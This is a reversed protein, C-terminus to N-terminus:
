GRGSATRRRVPWASRAFASGERGAPPTSQPRRGRRWGARRRRTRACRRSNIEGASEVFDVNKSEIDAFAESPKRDNGSPRAVGQRRSTRDRRKGAVTLRHAVLLNCPDGALEIFRATFIEAVADRCFHQGRRQSEILLEGTALANLYRADGLRDSVAFRFARYKQFRKEVARYVM